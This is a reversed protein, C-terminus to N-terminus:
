VAPELAVLLAPGPLAYAIVPLKQEKFQRLASVIEHCEHRSPALLTYGRGDIWVLIDLTNSRSIGAFASTVIGRVPVVARARLGRAMGGFRVLLILGFAASIGVLPLGAGLLGPAYKGGFPATAVAGVGLVGFLIGFLRPFFTTTDM